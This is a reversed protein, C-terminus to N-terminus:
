NAPTDWWVFTIDMDDIKGDKLQLEIYYTYVNYIQDADPVFRCIYFINGNDDIGYVKPYFNIKREAVEVYPFDTMCQEFFNETLPLASLKYLERANKMTILTKMVENINELNLAEQQKCHSKLFRTMNIIRDTEEETPPTDPEEIYFKPVERIQINNPEYYESQLVWDNGLMFWLDWGLLNLEGDEYIKIVQIPSTDEKYVYYEIEVEMQTDAVLYEALAEDAYKGLPEDVMTTDPVWEDYPFHLPDSIWEKIGLMELIFNIEYQEMEPRGISDLEKDNEAPKMAYAKGRVMMICILILTTTLIHTKIMHKRSIM